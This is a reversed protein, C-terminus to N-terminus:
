QVKQLLKKRQLKKPLKLRKPLHKQNIQVAKPLLRKTTKKNLKNENTEKTKAPM